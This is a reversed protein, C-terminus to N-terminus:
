CLVLSIPPHPPLSFMFIPSPTLLTRHSALHAKSCLPPSRACYFRVDVSAMKILLPHSLAQSSEEDSM